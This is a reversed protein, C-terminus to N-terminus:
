NEFENYVVWISIFFSIIINVIFLWRIQSATMEVKLYDFDRFKKRVFKSEINDYLYDVFDHLNIESGRQLQIYNRILIKLETSESWTMIKSWNVNGSNDLGIIVNFENKNGGNWYREQLEGFEPGENTVILFVKVEKSKGLRANLVDLKHKLNDDQIGILHNQQWRNIEPYKFLGLSDAEIESVEKFKFVSNSAKVRNEYHHKSVTFELLKDDGPFITYYADGDNNCCFKRRMDKFTQNGFKSVLAKYEQENIRWTEGLNNRIMWYEPNYDEYSCDYYRTCYETFGDSDVGCAYSESCTRTIWESWSEYHWAETIYGNHFEIDKTQSHESCGKFSLIMILTFVFSPIIEWWQTKHNFIIFLVVAFLVPILFALWEM